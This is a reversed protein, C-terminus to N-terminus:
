TRDHMDGPHFLNCNNFTVGSVENSTICWQTEAGKVIAYRYGYYRLIKQICGIVFDELM